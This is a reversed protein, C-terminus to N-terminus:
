GSHTNNINWENVSLLGANLDKYHMTAKEHTVEIGTISVTMLLNDRNMRLDTYTDGEGAFEHFHRVDEATPHPNEKLWAAFWSKRKEIVAEDYLTASCWMRAINAPRPIVFKHAGDWRTEWLQGQQCLVLTFPEIDQLDIEEFENKPDNSDLIELFIIGRSKRYPPTPIHRAFGGNLLVMVNGNNHMGIWTGGAKGDKPFLIKGTGFEWAEPMAAPARMVTEDRNSTILVRDKAPIFTVTCM